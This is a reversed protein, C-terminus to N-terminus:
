NMSGCDPHGIDNATDRIPTGNLHHDWASEGIMLKIIKELFEVRSELDKKKNNMNCKM